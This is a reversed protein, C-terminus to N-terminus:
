AAFPDAVTAAVALPTLRSFALKGNDYRCYAGEARVRLIVRPARYLASSPPVDADLAAEITPYAYFGGSHGQQAREHLTVGIAYETAGDFISVYRGDETVAVAKYYDDGGERRAPESRLKGPAKIWTRPAANYWDLVLQRLNDPLQAWTKRAIGSATRVFYYYGQGNGYKHIYDMHIALFDDTTVIAASNTRGKGRKGYGNVMVVTEGEIYPAVDSTNFANSDPTEKRSEVQISM